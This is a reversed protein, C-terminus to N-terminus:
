KGETQNLPHNHRARARSDLIRSRHAIHKLGEPTPVPLPHLHNERRASHMLRQFANPHVPDLTTTYGEFMNYRSTKSPM